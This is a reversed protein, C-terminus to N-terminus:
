KMFLINNYTKQLSSRDNRISFSSENQNPLLTDLKRHKNQETVM